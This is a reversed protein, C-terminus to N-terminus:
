LNNSFPDDMFSTVCIQAITVWKIVLPKSSGCL